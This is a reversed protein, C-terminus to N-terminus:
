TLTIEIAEVETSNGALTNACRFALEDMAGGPPIGDGSPCIRPRLDQITTSLGEDLVEICSASYAFTDLFSTTVDGHRFAASRRTLWSTRRTLSIPRVRATSSRM